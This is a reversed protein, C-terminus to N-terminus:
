FLGLRPVFDTFASAKQSLVSKIEVGLSANKGARETWNIRKGKKGLERPEASGSVKKGWSERDLQALQTFSESAFTGASISKRAV